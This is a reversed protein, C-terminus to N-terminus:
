LVKKGLVNPGAYSGLLLKIIDLNGSLCAAELATGYEGGSFAV